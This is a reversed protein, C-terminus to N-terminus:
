STFLVRNKSSCANQKMYIIYKDDYYGSSASNWKGNASEEATDVVTCNDKEFLM